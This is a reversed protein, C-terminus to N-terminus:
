KKRLSNWDISNDYSEAIHEIDEAHIILMMGEETLTFTVVAKAQGKPRERFGIM